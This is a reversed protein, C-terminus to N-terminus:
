RYMIKLIGQYIAMEPVSARSGRLTLLLLSSLFAGTSAKECTGRPTGSVQSARRPPGPIEDHRPGFVFQYLAINWSQQIGWARLVLYIREEENISKM